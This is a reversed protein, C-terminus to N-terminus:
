RNGGYGKKERNMQAIKELDGKNDINFRLITDIYDQAAKQRSNEPVPRSLIKVLMNMQEMTLIEEFAMVNIVNGNQFIQCACEYIKALFPSSFESKQLKKMIEETLLNDAFILAIIGEEARASRVNEYKLENSNPQVNRVPSLNQRKEKANQSKIKRVFAKKVEINMAEISIDALKAARASYVERSVASDLKSIINACQKLFEVKEDANELNFKEKASLLKFDMHNQGATILNEFAAVGYEKIFEDPDKAGPIKIVRVEMETKSLIDIARTTAKQGAEDADYCIIIKSKHRSLLKAQEETLATGLSAVANDFGVSHLAIVDMYGEVLLLYDFKTKRARNLAFLNRGKSFLPTEPSNLYKPMSDDLVRGGFAVVNGRVDIIPFMVRGRFRDYYGGNKGKSTFGADFIEDKYFGLSVLHNILKDWSDEAYGLGFNDMTRKHLGRNKFYNLGRAGNETYLNNYFHRAAAKNIELLRERKKKFGKDANDEPVQMNYMNALFYIADIYTLGEVRMIFTIAGGGAACGFCHFIQKDPAVSFSPTKENHFPCLGFYNGGKKTLKVYRSVIETIDCRATLEEIFSQPLAM